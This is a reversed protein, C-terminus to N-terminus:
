DGGRKIVGNLIINVVMIFCFLVLGIGSLAERHLGSSYAWEMPISVTMLRVPKLFSPMNAVNGAVMMVAMAEGIARGVGLVMGAVIGSRAAPVVVRFISQLQTSGLALAADEYQKPVALISTESVSIITPLIMIILIVIASLLCGSKPLGASAQFGFIIPAILTAGLLGYVVSPIGALLEILGNLPGSLWKPALKALYVAVLVGLPLAVAVAVFVAIMSGAIMPLIGFLDQNPDWVRGFLFDVVGIKAIGPVGAIVMYASLCVVFIVAALGCVTFVAGM